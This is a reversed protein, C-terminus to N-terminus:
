RSPTGIDRALDSKMSRSCGSRGASAPKVRMSARIEMTTRTNPRMATVFRRSTAAVEFMTALWAVAAVVAADRM